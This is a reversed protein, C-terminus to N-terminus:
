EENPEASNADQTTLMDDNEPQQILCQEELFRTTSNSTIILEINFTKAPNFTVHLKCKVLKLMTQMM